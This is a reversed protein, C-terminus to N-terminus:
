RTQTVLFGQIGAPSYYYGGATCPGAPACAVAYARTGGDAHLAHGPESVAPDWAGNQEAAIFGYTMGSTYQGTLACNGASGCALSVVTGLSPYAPDPGQLGAPTTWTGNQETATFMDRGSGNSVEGAATCSGAPACSVTYVSSPQGPTMETATGWARHQALATFGHETLPSATSYYGGAACIGDPGCSVSTVQADDGTNLAALGPVGAATGWRNNQESAVFEHHRSQRDLYYGGAACIGDPGCSVSTVQADDGTNLAALGAVEAAKGWIGNREAAVFGQTYPFRRSYYGGAACGGAACSVSSVTAYGGTNLAALGPVETAKGWTGNREAAVFGHEHNDTYYRGGAACNGAPACSVSLVQAYGSKNLAGLGPVEIAKAWIGNREAAVFGQERRRGDVYSGGAACNGASPCSVSLVQADKGKNLAALGPVEIANGWSGAARVSALRAPVAGAGAAGAVGPGAAGWLAAAGALALVGSGIRIKSM